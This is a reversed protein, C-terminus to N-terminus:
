DGSMTAHKGRGAPVSTDSGAVEPRGGWAAAKDICQRWRICALTYWIKVQDVGYSARATQAQKPQRCSLRGAAFGAM